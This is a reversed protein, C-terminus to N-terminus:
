GANPNWATETTLFKNYMNMKNFHKKVKFVWIRNKVVPNVDAPERLLLVLLLYKVQPDHLLLKIQFFLM